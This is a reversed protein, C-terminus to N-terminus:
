CGRDPRAWGCRWDGVPCGARQARICVDDEHPPELGRVLSPRRPGRQVRPRDPATPAADYHARTSDSLHDFDRPARRAPGPREEDARAAPIGARWGPTRTSTWSRWTSCWRSASRGATSDGLSTLLLDFDTLGFTVSARCGSCWRRPTWRPSDVGLAEQSRRSTGTGGPRRGARVPVGLRGDVAEACSVRRATPARHLRANDAARPAAHDVTRWRCAFNYM